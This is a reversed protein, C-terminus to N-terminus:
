IYEIKEKPFNTPFGEQIKSLKMRLYHSTTIGLTLASVEEM